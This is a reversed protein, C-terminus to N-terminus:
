LTRSRSVSAWCQVIRLSTDVTWIHSSITLGLRRNLKNM